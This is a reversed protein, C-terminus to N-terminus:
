CKWVLLKLASKVDYLSAMLFRRRRMSWTSFSSLSLFVSTTANVFLISRSLFFLISAWSSRNKRTVIKSWAQQKGTWLVKCSFQSMVSIGAKIVRRNVGFCRADASPMWAKDKAPTTVLIRMITLYQWNNNIRATLHGITLIWFNSDAVFLLLLFFSFSFSCLCVTGYEM